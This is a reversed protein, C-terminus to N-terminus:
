AHFLFHILRRWKAKQLFLLCCCVRVRQRRCLHTTRYHRITDALHLLPSYHQPVELTVAQSFIVKWKTWIIHQSTPLIEDWGIGARWIEQLIMKLGITFCSLFRLPDFISMLIQLVERKTPHPAESLINRKVRAFRFIYKLIDSKPEWFMSLVIEADGLEMLTQTDTSSGQLHKLFELSNSAWSRINFGGAAHIVQVKSTVDIAEVETALRDIFYYVYHAEPIAAFTPPSELKHEKANKDRVYHAVCLACSIGFTM